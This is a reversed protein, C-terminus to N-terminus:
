KHQIKYLARAITNTGGWAQLYVPGPKDDLLVEVIRDSGAIDKDMEGVNSINGVYVKKRLEAPTPFGPAHRKL